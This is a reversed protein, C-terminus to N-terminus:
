NGMKHIPGVTEDNTGEGSFHSAVLDCGAGLETVVAVEPRVIALEGVKGLDRVELEIEFVQVGDARGVVRKELSDRRAKKAGSLVVRPV